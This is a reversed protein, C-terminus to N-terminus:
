QKVIKFVQQARGSRVQLLYMGRSLARIDIENGPSDAQMVMKGTLAFLRASEVTVASEIHIVDSAPNPYVSIKPSNETQSVALPANNAYVKWYPNSGFTGFPTTLSGQLHCVAVLEPKNDGNIDFCSWRQSGEDEFSLDADMTKNYGYAHNEYIQGGVPIPWTTSSLSFGSGNNKYVKWYPSAAPNGFVRGIGSQIQGTVVLEPKDDGDTDLIDWIQSGEDEFSLFTDSPKYYGANFSQYIDGGVPLPWNFPSVSFGTGSNLYVKWYPNSAVTGFVRMKGSQIQSTVVLDLKNDGNMDIVSWMQSGEDEYAVDLDAMKSYGAATGQYIEGGVPLTWNVPSPSFGSGTNLYAKWYPNSAVTGFVRAQGAQLQCTVVIDPKNDGNVDVTNWMQSGDQEFSVYNDGVTYYGISMDSRIEGGVPVPWNTATASFGAGTNLFVKWYPNAGVTGFVRDVGSQVQSTVVLDPKGDGNMDMTSWMQSGEGDSSYMYNDAAVYYGVPGPSIQGGVPVPWDIPATSFGSGTNLYVKWYPNAAVTGFVRFTGSQLQSTVVMDPRGDGNIDFTSWFQSGEDESDFTNDDTKCFGVSYDSLQGGPPNSWNSPSLSFGQGLTMLSTLCIAALTIKKM